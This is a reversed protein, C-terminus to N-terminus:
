SEGSPLTQEGSVKVVRWVPSTHLVWRDKQMCRLAPLSISTRAQLISVNDRCINPNVALKCYSQM